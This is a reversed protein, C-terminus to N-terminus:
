RDVSGNTHDTGAASGHIRDAFVSRRPLRKPEVSEELPDPEEDQGFNAAALCLGALVVTFGLTTPQGLAGNPLGTIVISFLLISL